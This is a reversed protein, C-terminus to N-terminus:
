PDAVFAPCAVVLHRVGTQALDILTQDTYPELWKARGLRSQSQSYREEPLGMAAAIRCANASSPSLLRCSRPQRARLLQRVVLCDGRVALKLHAEPLGHYSFLHDWREPLARKLM